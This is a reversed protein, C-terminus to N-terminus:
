LYIVQFRNAGRAKNLHIGPNKVLVKTKQALVLSGQMFDETSCSSPFHLRYVVYSKQFFRLVSTTLFQLKQAVSHQVTPVQM